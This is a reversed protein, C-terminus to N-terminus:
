GTPQLLPLIELGDVNRRSLDAALEDSGWGTPDAASGLPTRVSGTGCCAPCTVRKGGVVDFRTPGCAPLLCRAPRSMEPLDGRHWAVGPEAAAAALEDVRYRDSTRDPLVAEM